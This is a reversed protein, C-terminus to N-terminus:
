PTCNIAQEAVQNRLRDYLPGNWAGNHAVADAYAKECVAAPSATKCIDRWYSCARPHSTAMAPSTLSACAITLGVFVIGRM